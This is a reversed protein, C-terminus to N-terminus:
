GFEDMCFDLDDPVDPMEGIEFITQSINDPMLVSCIGLLLSSESSLSKFSLDWIAQLESSHARKPNKEYISLFEAITWSRRHILGAMHSIGMAHGSLKESLQYASQGETAIDNGIDRKLLFLLFESGTQADWSKVELGTTALSFVLSHNRTTILARGHSTEPWYPMLVEISEVNDFVVLWKYDEYKYTSCVEVVCFPM